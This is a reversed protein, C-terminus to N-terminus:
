TGPNHVFGFCSTPNLLGTGYSLQFQMRGKGVLSFEVSFVGPCGPCGPMRTCHCLSASQDMVSAPFHSIITVFGRVHGDFIQLHHRVAYHIHHVVYLRKIRPTQVSPRIPLRNM